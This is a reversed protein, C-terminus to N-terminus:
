LMGKPVAWYAPLFNRNLKMKMQKSEMKKCHPLAYARLLYLAFKSM